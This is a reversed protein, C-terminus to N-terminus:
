TADDRPVVRSGNLIWQSSIVGYSAPFKRFPKILDFLTAVGYDAIASTFPRRWTSAVEVLYRERAEAAATLNAAICISASDM